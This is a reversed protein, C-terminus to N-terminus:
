RSKLDYKSMGYFYRPNQFYQNGNSDTGVLEGDKIEDVRYLQKLSGWVGGNQKIITNFRRFKDLVSLKSM